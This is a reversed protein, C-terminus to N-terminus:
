GGTIVLKREIWALIVRSLLLLILCWAAQFALQEWIATGTIKGIFLSLPINFIGQFPLWLLVRSVADPFFWLPVMAGSCIDTIVTKFMDIGWTETFLVATMGVIFNILFSLLFALLVSAAFAAAQLDTPYDIPFFLFVAILQPIVAYVISYLLVGAAKSFHMWEFDWPKQMDFVISGDRVKDSIEYSISPPMIAFLIVSLMAYTQMGQSTVGTSLALGQGNAYIAKWVERFAIVLIFSNIVRLLVDFKYVQTNKLTTITYAAYKGM